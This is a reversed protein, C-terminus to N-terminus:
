PPDYQIIWDVDPIDIGRASLDTTLLIQHNETLVSERFSKYIKSRKKQDIKGHLKAIESEPFLLQLV